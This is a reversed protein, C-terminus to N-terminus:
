LRCEKGVRREESRLNVKTDVLGQAVGAGLPIYLGDVGEFVLGGKRDVYVEVGRTFLQGGLGEMRELTARLKRMSTRPIKVDAKEQRLWDVLRVVLLDAYSWRMLKTRSVSPVVLETEAWYYLTRLPVGALAAAREAPYAASVQARTTM